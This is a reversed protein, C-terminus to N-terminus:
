GRLWRLREMVGDLDAVFFGVAYDSVGGVWILQDRHVVLGNGFVVLPRDGYEEVIGRPALLYDSVALLEGDDSLVAVGNRYSYDSKIVGHWGVIYENSSLKVANTSWGVKFEWEEHALVPEMTRADIVPPELSTTGRWCIEVDALTPRCLLLAEGGRVWLFACDKMKPAFEDEGWRIRFFERKLVRMRSDLVALGQVWKLELGSGAPHYGFGTYLMLLAEGLTSVRADECGRFEWLERPWLVVSARVPKELTGSLLREVDVSFLCISSTYNYYDFVTRPFVLLESGKLLAGPNFIAVPKRPYNEVTVDSPFVYALREFLDHTEPSRFGRLERVKAQAKRRLAEEVATAVM